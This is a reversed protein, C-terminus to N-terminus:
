RGLINLEKFIKIVPILIMPENEAHGIEHSVRTLVM